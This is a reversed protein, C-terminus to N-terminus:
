VENQISKPLTNKFIIEPPDRDDLDDLSERLRLRDRRRPRPRDELDFDPDLDRCSVRLRDGVGGFGLRIKTM